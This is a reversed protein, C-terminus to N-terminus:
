SKNENNEFAKKYIAEALEDTPHIYRATTASSSHGVLKQIVPINGTKAHMTTIFSHRLLHPFVKKEIGARKAYRKLVARVQSRDVNEFIKKDVHVPFSKCGPRKQSERQMFIPLYSQLALLANHSFFVKREKRGKGQWIILTRSNLNIDSLRINMLEDLRIGTEQLLEFTAWDRAVRQHPYTFYLNTRFSRNLANGAPLRRFPINKRRIPTLIVDRIRNIEEETLPSRPEAKRTWSLPLDGDMPNPSIAGEDSLFKFFNRLARIEALITNKRYTKQKQRFKLFELIDAHGIRMWNVRPKYKLYFSFWRRVTREQQMRDHLPYRVELHYIWNSMAEKPTLAPRGRQSKKRTKNSM